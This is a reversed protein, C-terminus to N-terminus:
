PSNGWIVNRLAVVSEYVRYRYRRWNAPSDPDSTGVSGDLNAMVFDGGAWAPTASSLDKDYQGSRALIGFRVAVVQRWQGSTWTSTDTAWESADVTGDSNADRWYEAKLSVINEALVNADNNGDGDGDAFRLDDRVVLRENEVRFMSRRPSPGLDLLDGQTFTVGIGGSKNYRPTKAAGAESTYSSTTHDVTLADANLNGTIEQMACLAPTGPATAVVVDGRLIGSRNRTKKTTASSGTFQLTATKLDSTGYLVAVTDGAAGAGVTILVPVLPFTFDATGGRALDYATVTCGMQTADGFGYGALRLDRDLMYSAITGSTQAGAVGGTTRRREEMTSYVQLVALTAVIGVVIAVMLEVLSFGAVHNAKRRTM